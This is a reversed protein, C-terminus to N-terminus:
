LRASHIPTSMSQAFIPFSRQIESEVSTNRFQRSLLLFPENDFSQIVNTPVPTNVVTTPQTPLANFDIEQPIATDPNVAPQVSSSVSPASVSKAAESKTYANSQPYISQLNSLYNNPARLESLQAQILNGMSSNGSLTSADVYNTSNFTKSDWNPDINNLGTKLNQYYRTYEQQALDTPLKFNQFFNSIADPMIQKIYQCSPSYCVDMFLSCDGEKVSRDILPKSSGILISSDDIGTTLTKYVNPLQAKNGMYSVGAILASLAGDNQIYSKDESGTMTSILSTLNQLMTSDFGSDLKLTGLNSFVTNINNPLGFNGGFINQISSPLDGLQSLIDLKGSGLSSLLNDFSLNSGPLLNQFNGLSELPNFGGGMISTLSSMDGGFLSGLSDLSNGSGFIGGLSSFIDDGGIGGLLSTLGGDLGSLGGIGGLIDTIGGLDGLGGFISGIDFADNALSGLGFLDGFGGGDNDGTIDSAETEIAKDVAEITENDKEQYSNVIESTDKKYVDIVALDDDPGTQFSPKALKSMDKFLFFLICCLCSPLSAGGDQKHGLM